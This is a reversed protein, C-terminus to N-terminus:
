TTQFGNFWSNCNRNVETRKELLVYHGSIKYFRDSHVTAVLDLPAQWFFIFNLFYFEHFRVQRFSIVSLLHAREQVAATHCGRCVRYLNYLVPFLYWLIFSWLRTFALLFIKHQTTDCSWLQFVNWFKSNVSVTFIPM